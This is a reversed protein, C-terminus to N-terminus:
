LQGEIVQFFTNGDYFNNEALFVFNNVAFPAIDPYLALQIDGKETHLTALYDLEPDITIEPCQSFQKNVLRGSPIMLNELWYYFSAVSDIYIPIPNGNILAVPASPQGLLVAQNSQEAILASVTPSQFDLQFQELDLGLDVIEQELWTLFDAESLQLWEEQRDFLISHVDWFRDQLGGAEAAKAAMVSIPNELDAFHRFVLRLDEPYYLLADTLAWETTLCTQCAFDNYVIITVSYGQELGATHDTEAVMEPAAQSQATCEAVSRQIEAPVLTYTATPQVGQPKGRCASLWVLAITILLIRFIKQISKTQM